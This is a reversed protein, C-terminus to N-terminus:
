GVWDIGQILRDDPINQPGSFAVSVRFGVGTEALGRRCQGLRSLIDGHGREQDFSVLVRLFQKDEISLLDVDTPVMGRAADDVVDVKRVARDRPTMRPNDLLALVIEDLIEPTFVPHDDILAGNPSHGQGVLSRMEM